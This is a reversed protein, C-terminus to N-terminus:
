IDKNEKMNEIEKNIDFDDSLGADAAKAVVKKKKVKKVTPEPM